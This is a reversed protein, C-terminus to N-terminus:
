RLTLITIGPPCLLRMCPAQGRECGAGRSIYITGGGFRHLGGRAVARPLTSSTSVPGLYPARDAGGHAHGSLVATRRTMVSAAVVEANRRYRAAQM